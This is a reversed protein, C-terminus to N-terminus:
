VAADKVGQQRNFLRIAEEAARKNAEVIDIKPSARIKDQRLYDASITLWERDRMIAFLEDISKGTAISTNQLNKLVGKVGLESKFPHKIKQRYAILEKLFEEGKGIEQLLIKVQTDNKCKDFLNEKEKKLNKEKEEVNVNVNVNDNVNVNAKPKTESQNNNPKEKTKTLNKNPETKTENQNKLDDDKKPRGGKKGNEYKKINAEIQPKAMTFIAKAIDSLEETTDNGNLALEFIAEYTELRQQEPLYKIADYFSRYFVFSDRM